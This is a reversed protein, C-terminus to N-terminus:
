SRRERAQSPPAVPRPPSSGPPVVRCRLGPAPSTPSPAGTIAPARRSSRPSAPRVALPREVAWSAGLVKFAPLGLRASEDKVSVSAVGLEEAIAHLEHVPTPQYGPLSAHFAAADTVPAAVVEPRAAENVFARM